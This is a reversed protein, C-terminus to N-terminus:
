KYAPMLSSSSPGKWIRTPSPLGVAFCDLSIRTGIKSMVKGSFSAIRAPVVCFLQFFMVEPMM